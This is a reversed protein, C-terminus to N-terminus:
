RRNVAGEMRELAEQLIERPCAFNIREFGAGGKGFIYGEDLLVNAKKRMMEELKKEDPEVARFDFWALYTAEPRIWKVEPLKKKLFEDIFDVNNQLYGMLQDLWEEGKEYAATCATIGFINPFINATKGMTNRFERRISKNPIIINSIQLGAMNFTKSSSTCTISNQAFRESLSAFPYHVFGKYVLDSHIEDSIVFVNNRICIDGLMRLEDQTWVRGVPNHPSCLLLLKVKPDKAKEELDEFDMRYKGERLFLRNFVPKCGNDKIASFFPYYVPNQVIVKDGPNCFSQIAYYLAPVVGPSYVIWEKEITWQQRKKYWNIVADYYSGTRDSYGFIGKEAIEAVAQIVPQPCKFDMDAVWLPLLDEKGFAKKMLEANWKISNTNKRDVVEDFNYEM